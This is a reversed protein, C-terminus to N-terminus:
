RRDGRELKQIITRLHRVVRQRYLAVDKKGEAHGKDEHSAVAVVNWNIRMRQSRAQQSYSRNKFDDLEKM